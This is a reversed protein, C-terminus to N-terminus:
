TLVHGASIPNWKFTKDYKLSKRANWGNQFLSFTQMLYRRNFPLITWNVIITVTSLFKDHESCTFEKKEFLTIWDTVDIPKVVLSHAHQIEKRFFIWLTVIWQIRVYVLYMIKWVCRSLRTKLKTVGVESFSFRIASVTIAWCM